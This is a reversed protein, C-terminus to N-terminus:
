SNQNKDWPPKPGEGPPSSGGEGLDAGSPFSRSKGQGWDREQASTLDWFLTPPHTHIQRTGPAGLLKTKELYGVSLLKNLIKASNKKNAQIVDTMALLYTGM